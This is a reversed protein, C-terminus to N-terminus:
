ESTESLGEVAEVLRSLLYIHFVLIVGVLIMAITRVSLGMLVLPFCAVVALVFLLVLTTFPNGSARTDGM